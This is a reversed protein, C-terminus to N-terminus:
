LSYVKRNHANGSKLRIKGKHELTQLRSLCKGKGVKNEQLFSIMDGQTCSSKKLRKIILDDAKANGPDVNGEIGYFRAEKLQRTEADPEWTWLASFSEVPENRMKTPYINVVDDERKVCLALDLAAEISSHGRPTKRNGNDHKTDHHIVAAASDTAEAISRLASMVGVMQNSNEDINGSITGLNDFVVFKAALDKIVSVLYATAKTNTAVFPPALFSAYTIPTDKKAKRIRLMAGIRNHLVRQGSDVDIWLVPQKIVDFGTKPNDPLETLWRQGTAVCVAMDLVLNTKLSGAIGYFMTLSPLPLLQDVIYQTKDRKKLADTANFFQSKWKSFDTGNASSM